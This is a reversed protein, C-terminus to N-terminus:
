ESQNDWISLWTESMLEKHLYIQLRLDASKNRDRIALFSVRWNGTYNDKEIALHRYTGNNISLEPRIPQDPNLDFLDKSSFDVIIRRATQAQADLGFKAPDAAEELTRVVRAKPPQLVDKGFHLRYSYTISGDAPISSPVWYAVINDDTELRSGIEVLEVSGEGWNNLPEVWLSPRQEHHVELDLYNQFDRDRQILGFGKPNLDFFRTTRVGTSPHSLPRVLWEGWRGTLMVLSDSDHVEPRYDERPKKQSNEGFLFMSTLPAVGFKVNKNRPFLQATCDVTTTQGPHVKFEYAGTVSPSELLAYVIAQTDEKSPRVLWFHTFNPFEEGKPEATDVALGRTSIGFHDKRGVGRFYSAGLFVLFDDNIAASHLPYRLKFGTYGYTASTPFKPLAPKDIDFWDRNYAIEKAKGDVVESIKVPTPFGGGTQYFHVQFLSQGRWLSSEDRFRVMRYEDYNAEPQNTRPTPTYKNGAAERAIDAVTALSFGDSTKKADEAYGVNPIALLVGVFILKGLPLNLRSLITRKM